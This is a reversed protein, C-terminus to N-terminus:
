LFNCRGVVEAKVSYYAKQIEMADAPYTAMLEDRLEKLNKTYSGTFGNMIATLFVPSYNTKMQNM